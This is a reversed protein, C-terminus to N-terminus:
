MIERHSNRMFENLFCIFEYLNMTKMYIQLIELYYQCTFSPVSLFISTILLATGVTKIYGLEEFYPKSLTFMSAKM